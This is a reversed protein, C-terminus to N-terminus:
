DAGSRPPLGTASGRAQLNLYPNRLYHDPSDLVSSRNSFAGTPANLNPPAVTGLGHTLNRTPPVVPDFNLLGKLQGVNVAEWFRDQNSTPWPYGTTGHVENLRDYVKKLVAKFQGANVMESNHPGSGAALWEALMSHLELGAGGTLTLDMEYIAQEVAHKMQGVNIAAFNDDPMSASVVNRAVWWDPIGAYCPMLMTLAAQVTVILDKTLGPRRLFRLVSFEENM